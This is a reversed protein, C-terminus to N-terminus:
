ASVPQVVRNFVVHYYTRSADKAPAPVIFMDFCGLTAHEFSYTDQTLRRDAPGSFQLSFIEARCSDKVSASSRLPSHLEAAILRLEIAERGIKFGTGVQASFATFNLQGAVTRRGPLLASLGAVPALSATIALASCTAFFQRRNTM